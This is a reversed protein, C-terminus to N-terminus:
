TDSRLAWLCTRPFHQKATVRTASITTAAAYALFKVFPSPYEHAFMSAIAWSIEAHESPFSTGAKWFKGDGDGQFPRQRGTAYKLAEVVALGDITAEGSLFGTERQHENQTMIGLLYIGGAGGVMSYTGYDSIHRDRLLTNPNNSLHRSLSGDTAFLAAAFGGAPVLWTADSLRFRVASSWMGIQDDLLQRPLGRLTNESRGSGQAPQPNDPLDQTASDKPSNATQAESASQGATAGSTTEAAPAPKATSQGFAVTTSVLLCMMRLRRVLKGIM